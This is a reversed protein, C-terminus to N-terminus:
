RRAMGKRRRVPFEQPTPTYQGVGASLVGSRQLFGCSCDLGFDPYLLAGDNQCLRFVLFDILLVRVDDFICTSPRVPRM